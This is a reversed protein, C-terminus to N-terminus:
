GIEFVTLEPRCRFRIPFPFWGIGPNVYLPGCPTQFLGLDYEEVGFPVYVPGLLPLRVQGGHSHGALLLDYQEPGLKKVWAPYHMLLINRTTPEPKIPPQKLSRCTMGLIFIKEDRTILRGDLLWAGGTSNFCRAIEQFAAKSWYDHNGPVGYLPSQIRALHELAEPLHEKEEILDGTFCVLDPRLSNIKDVVRRLYVRDGKHHLDTFHVVRHSVKGGTLRLRRVKLWEPELWRADAALLFPSALLSGLLFRRRTV